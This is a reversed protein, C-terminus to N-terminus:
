VHARGIKVTASAVLGSLALIPYKLRSRARPALTYSVGLLILMAGALVLHTTHVQLAWFILFLALARDFTHKAIILLFSALVLWAAFIDPSIFGVFISVTTTLTTLTIVGFAIGARWRTAPLVLLAIRFLLYSTALAQLWVVGWLSPLPNVFRIFLGYGIPRDFPVFMRAGSFIYTGSDSYILPYGNYLPAWLLLYASGLIFITYVLARRFNM